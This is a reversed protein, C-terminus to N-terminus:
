SVRHPIPSDSLSAAAFDFVVPNKEGYGLGFRVSAADPSTAFASGIKARMDATRLEQLTTAVGQASFLGFAPDAAAFAFGEGCSQIAMITGDSVAVDAGQRRGVADLRRLIHRWGGESQAEAGGGAIVTAGNPSWAVDSLNGKGLDDSQAKVLPLLTKADLISVPGQEYGVAIRRGFPDFAVGYPEKGAVRKATLKLDVNYRHLQGDLSSAVFAGDPAFALGYVSDGYNRDALLEEGSASDLVRVGNKALGVGIRRGDASFAVRFVGSEFAGFRRIAGSLLDVITLSHKGTKYSAADWGGAALWRGDPSLAAAYVKGAIGEGIPLRVVRQLKGDPLSWLRVTKDESATALLRCAADVGIGRIPATHMGTEIRLFPRQDPCAKVAEDLAGSATGDIAGKYCGADTLRQELAKLEDTSMKSPDLGAACAALGACFLFPVAAAVAASRWWIRNRRTLAHGAAARIGDGTL